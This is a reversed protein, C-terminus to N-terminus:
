SSTFILPHADQNRMRRSIDVKVMSAPMRSIRVPKCFSTRSLLTKPFRYEGPYNVEGNITLIREEQMLKQSPVFFVDENKLAIDAVSHNMIGAIDVAIVELTRDAKRRHITGAHLSLM